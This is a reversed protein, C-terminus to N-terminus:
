RSKKLFEEWSTIGKETFVKSLINRPLSLIAPEDMANPNMKGFSYPEALEAEDIGVNYYGVSGRVRFYYLGNYDASWNLVSSVNGELSDVKEHYGSVYYGLSDYLDVRTYMNSNIKIKYTSDESALFSFMDINDYSLTHSQPSAITISTTDVTEDLNEYMDEEISHAWETPPLEGNYKSFVVQFSYGFSDVEDYILYEMELDNDDNFSYALDLTDFVVLGILDSLDGIVIHLSDGDAEATAGIGVMGFVPAEPLNMYLSIIDEEISLIPCSFYNDFEPYFEMGLAEYNDEGSEIQTVNIETLAWNGKLSDNNEPLLFCGSVFVVVAIIMLLKKM